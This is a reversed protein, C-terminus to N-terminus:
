ARLVGQIEPTAAYRELQGLEPKTLRAVRGSNRAHKHAVREAWADSAAEKEGAGVLEDWERNKEGVVAAFM